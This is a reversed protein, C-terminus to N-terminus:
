LQAEKPGTLNLLQNVFAVGAELYLSVERSSLRGTYFHNHLQNITLKLGDSLGTLNFSSELFEVIEGRERNNRAHRQGLTHNAADVAQIAAGWVVEAAAMDMESQILLEQAALFTRAAAVHEDYIM